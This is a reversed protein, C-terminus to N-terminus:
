EMIINAVTNKPNNNVTNFCLLIVDKEGINKIAHTIGAPFIFKYIEDNDIIFNNIIEEENYKYKILAKGYCIMTETGEIHYHNGRVTNPKTIVVHINNIISSSVDSIPEFVKGREDDFSKLKIILVKNSSNTNIQEM